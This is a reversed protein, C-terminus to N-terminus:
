IYWYLKVQVFAYTLWSMLNHYKDYAVAFAWAIKRMQATEGSGKSNACMFYLFLFLTLGFILCRAGSSPQAHMNLFSNVPPGITGYDWSIAWNMGHFVALCIWFALM